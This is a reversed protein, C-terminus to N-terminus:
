SLEDRFPLAEADRTKRHRRSKALQPSSRDTPFATRRDLEPPLQHKEGAARVEELDPFAYLTATAHESTFENVAKEHLKLLDSSTV